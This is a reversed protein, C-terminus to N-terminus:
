GLLIRKGENASLMAAQAIELNIAGEEGSVLPENHQEVANLFDELENKLPEMRKLEIKREDYEQPIQYLNSTDIKKITSSSVHLLQNIYDMEVFNKSCTLSVKRVKMPTLWNVEIFALIHNEFELLINAHDEFETENTKGSLTYVSRVKSNILYRIVDIDHIGLDLIVGVDKIRSPFSSVRRSSISIVDGFQKKEILNKTLGVVPNHREIFGAALIVNKKKANEVLIRAKESDGCIPKEVLVHKGAKIFENAIEFHTSTPTSISVAQLDENNLLDHYDPYGKVNFRKTIALLSGEDTDAVGILNAIESYVRTHNQGMTGLGIVGVNLM